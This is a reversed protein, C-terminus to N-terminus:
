CNITDCNKIFPWFNEEWHGQSFLDILKEKILLSDELMRLMCMLVYFFFFLCLLEREAAALSSIGLYKGSTEFQEDHIWVWM